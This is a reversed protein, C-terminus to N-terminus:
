TGNVFLYSNAGNYHLSLCFKTTTKTFNISYIKGASLSHEGLGKIPSNGLILINKKNNATNTSSSLDVGFIIVDKSIGGSPHDYFIQSDFGSGNGSCKYKKIDANKTLKITEFLVNKQIPNNNYKVNTIEYVVYINVVKEHNYAITKQQLISGRFKIKARDIYNNVLPSLSSNSTSIVELSENSLGKSKWKTIRISNNLTFYEFMSQFVLYNQVGDEDFHSKRRFYRLNISKLYTKTAYNSLDLKIKIDRSFPKPFYQFINKILGVILHIIIVKGNLIYNIM